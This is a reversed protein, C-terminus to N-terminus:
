REVVYERQAVGGIIGLGNKINNYVIVKEALEYKNEQLTMFTSKLYNYSSYTLSTIEVAMKNYQGSVAPRFTFRPNRGNFLADTVYFEQRTKDGFLEWETDDVDFYVMEKYWGSSNLWYMRIRYYNQVAGDDHLQVSITSLLRNDVPVATLQIDGVKVTDPIHDSGSVEEYGPITATVRYTAGAQAPTNGRYYTRGYIIYPTLLEKFTGNEYLNVIANKIEPLPQTSNLGGSLTIRANIISDKNMLMNLVVKNSEEPVAVTIDKKCSSIMQILLIFFLLAPKM